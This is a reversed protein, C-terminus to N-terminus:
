ANKEKICLSPIRYKTGKIRRAAIRNLVYLVQLQEDEFFVHTMSTFGMFFFPKIQLVQAFVLSKGRRFFVGIDREDAETQEPVSTKSGKNNLV